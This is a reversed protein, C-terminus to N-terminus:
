EAAEDHDLYIDGHIMGQLDATAFEESYDIGETSWEVVECKVVQDADDEAADEVNDIGDYVRVLAGEEWTREDEGFVLKAEDEADVIGTKDLADLDSSLLSEVQLNAENYTRRRIRRRQTSLEADAEDEEIELEIDETTYGLHGDDEANVIQLLDGSIVEKRTKTTM